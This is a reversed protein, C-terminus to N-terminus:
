WKYNKMDGVNGGCNVDTYVCLACSHLRDYWLGYYTTGKIYKFIGKVIELKKDKHNLQFRAM